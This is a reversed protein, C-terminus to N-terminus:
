GNPEGGEEQRHVEGGCEVEDRERVFSGGKRDGVWVREEGEGQDELVLM